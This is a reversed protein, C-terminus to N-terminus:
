GDSEKGLEIRDDDNMTDLDKGQWLKKFLASRTNRDPQEIYVQKSFRSTHFLNCASTPSISM